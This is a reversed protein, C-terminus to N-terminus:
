EYNVVWEITYALRGGARTSHSTNKEPARLGWIVGSLSPPASFIGRGSLRFGKPTLREKQCGGWNLKMMGVVLSRLTWALTSDVSWSSPFTHLKESMAGM